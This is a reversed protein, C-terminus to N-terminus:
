VRPQAASNVISEAAEDLSLPIPTDKSPTTGNLRPKNVPTQIEESAKRKLGEMVSYREKEEQLESRLEMYLKGLMNTGPWIEPDTRCTAAKNMGVGWFDQGQVAEAIPQNGTKMLQRKIEKNGYVKAKIISRMVNIKEKAWTPRTIIKNSQKKAEAAVNGRTMAVAIDPQNNHTAKAYVYAHESSAFELGKWVVNCPYFNSLMDEAGGFACADNPKFRECQESGEVHGAKKCAKCVRENQCQRIMHGSQYCNYCMVLLRPQNRYFINCRWNGCFASRKLPNQSLHQENVLVSRNGNKINTLKGEDDRMYEYKVTSEMKCGLRELMIEIETNALSLPLNSVTVKITKQLPDNNEDIPRFPNQDYIPVSIGRISFGMVLLKLRSEATNLYIRWLGRVRQIGELDDRNVVKCIEKCMDYEKLQQNMSLGLDGHKVFVPHIGRSSTGEATDM